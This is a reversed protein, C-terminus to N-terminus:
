RSLLGPLDRHRSPLLLLVPQRDHHHDRVRGAAEQLLWVLTLYHKENQIAKEQGLGDIGNVVSVKGRHSNDCTTTNMYISGM